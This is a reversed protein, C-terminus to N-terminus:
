RTRHKFRGWTPDYSRRSSQAATPTSSTAWRSCRRSTRALLLNSTRLQGCRGPVGVGGNFYSSAPDCAIDGAAAIVPDFGAPQWDPYRGDASASIVKARKGQLGMSVIQRHGPTGVAALIRRGDPSWSPSAYPRTGGTIRRAHRGDDRATWLMGARVFVLRRGDPSWSPAHENGRAKTLRRPKRRRGGRHLPRRRTKTAHVVYAIRGLASWAPDREDATGRTLQRLSAGDATRVYVHREGRAGEAFAVQDGAPSWAPDESDGGPSTLRRLGRGDADVIWVDQGDPGTRVVALRLGQPSWAPASITDGELIGRVGTNDACWCRPRGVSEAVYAVAGNRGSFAADAPAALALAALM